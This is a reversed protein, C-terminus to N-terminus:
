KNPLNAIGDMDYTTMEPTVVTVICAHVRVLDEASPAPSRSRLISAPYGGAPRRRNMPVRYQRQAGDTPRNIRQKVAPM